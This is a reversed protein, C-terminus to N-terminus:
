PYVPFGPPINGFKEAAMHIADLLVRDIPHKPHMSFLVVPHELPPSPEDNRGYHLPHNTFVVMNFLDPKSPTAEGLQREVSEKVEKFWPKEFVSGELPPLNLDIFIVYPQSVTKKLARNLLQIIDAKTTKRGIKAGLVNKRQPSKAEVAIQLGASIHTAIFETPKMAQDPTIKFGARICTAAAFIEHRVGQFEGGIKLRRLWSNFLVGNDKLVFLDYALNCFYNSSGCPLIGYEGQDDKV